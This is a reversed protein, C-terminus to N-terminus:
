RTKTGQAEDAYATSADAWREEETFFRTTEEAALKADLEDCAVETRFVHTGSKSAKAHIKFVQEGGAPLNDLTRFTVRGDRISHQGGEVHAPDIGDSFMAVVNVGHAATMGRNKIHIEYVAEEGVPVVGKPDSVDLKLDALAEVNVAVSKADTLEGTASQASLEIKNAGPQTMRCQVQMFREEGANLSGAKWVLTRRDADYSNGDSAHVLEAGAPLNCQVAVQEVAATGPNKVRFFYTAVSGAYKKDPGRWDVQLEAKRCLVKKVSEARLNGAGIAAAQIKLEGADRATLELEIKKSEGAALTGIKHRVMSDKGGGPSTLEISVDEAAGNGPNSLTLAYRQAKGFMVEAPGAIEMQLKPEQIEVTAQAVVPAHTVEIGLQMEHGGRPILQLSLTQSGGAPLEYLQWKIVGTKAAGSSERDVTGNSSTADVVEAGAPAAIVAVVERAAVEGKNEVTVRYEAQRGVVISQPGEIHSTILPQKSTFLLGRSATASNSTSSTIRAPKSPVPKPQEASPRTAFMASADKADISGLGEGTTSPEIAAPKPAAAKPRAAPRAAAKPASSTSPMPPAMRDTPKAAPAEAAEEASDESLLADRFDRPKASGHSRAAPKSERLYSPLDESESAAPPAIDQDAPPQSRANENNSSGIGSLAEALENRRNSVPPSSREVRSATRPSPEVANSEVMSQRSPVGASSRVTRQNPQQDSNFQQQRSQPQPGRSPVGKSNTFLGAAQGNKSPMQRQSKLQAPDYPMPVDSAQQERENDSGGFLNPLHLKSLLGGRKKSVQDQAAERPSAAAAQRVRSDVYYRPDRSGQRAQAQAQLQQRSYAGTGDQALLTNTSCTALAAAIIWGRTM